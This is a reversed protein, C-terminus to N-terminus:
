EEETECGMTEPRLSGLAELCWGPEPWKQYTSCVVSLIATKSKLWGSLMVLGGSSGEQEGVKLSYLLTLGNPLQVVEAKAEGSLDQTNRLALMITKPSRHGRGLDLKVGGEFEEITSGGEVQMVYGM